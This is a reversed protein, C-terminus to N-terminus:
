MTQLPILIRYRPIHQVLLNPKRHTFRTIQRKHRIRQPMEGLAFCIASRWEKRAFTRVRRPLQDNLADAYRITRRSQFNLPCLTLGFVAVSVSSLNGSSTRRLEAFRGEVTALV